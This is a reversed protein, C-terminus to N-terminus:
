YPRPETPEYCGKSSVIKFKALHYTNWDTNRCKSYFEEMDAKDEGHSLISKISNPGEHEEKIVMWGRKKANTRMM